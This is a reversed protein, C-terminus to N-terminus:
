PGDRDQWPDAHYPDFRPGDTRRANLRALEADDFGGPSGRPLERRVFREIVRRARRGAAGLERDSAEACEDWIRFLVERREAESYAGDGWVAALHRPLFAFSRALSRAHGLRYRFLATADRLRETEDHTSRMALAHEGGLPIITLNGDRDIEAGVRNGWYRFRGDAAADLCLDFALCLREHHKHERALASIASDGHAPHDGARCRLELHRADLALVCDRLVDMGLVGDFDTLELPEFVDVTLDRALAGAAVRSVRSWRRSTGEPRDIADAADVPDPPAYVMTRLAGTDIALLFHDRGVQVNALYHGGDLPADAVLAAGSAKAQARADDWTTLAIEGRLLDLLLVADGDLLRQPSLVGDFRPARPDPDNGQDIWDSVGIGDLAVGLEPVEVKVRAREVDHPRLEADYLPPAPDRLVGAAQARSLSWVHQTSGTDLLLAVPEGDITARVMPRAMPARADFWIRTRGAPAALATSSALLAALTVARRV